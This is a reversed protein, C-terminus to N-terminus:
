SIYIYIVSPRNPVYMSAENCIDISEGLDGRDEIFFNKIKNLINPQEM